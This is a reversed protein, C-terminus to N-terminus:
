IALRWTSQSQRNTAFSFLNTLEISSLFMACMCHFTGDYSAVMYYVFKHRYKHIDNELYDVHKQSGTANVIRRCELLAQNYEEVNNSRVLTHFSVKLSGWLRTGFQKPWDVELLHYADLCLKCTDEIHLEKLLRDTMIGDAFIVKISERKRLPAMTLAGNVLWIYTDIRETCGIGEIAVGIKKFGDLLVISFYPWYVSNLQRKMADLFLVDGYLEFMRRMVPTMWMFGCERGESDYAVFYTFGHDEEHMKQLLKVIHMTDNGENLAERLLERISRSAHDIFEAPLDASLPSCLHFHARL